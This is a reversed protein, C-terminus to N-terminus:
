PPTHPCIRTEHGSRESSVKKRLDAKAATSQLATQSRSLAFEELSGSLGGLELFWGLELRFGGIRHAPPSALHTVSKVGRV